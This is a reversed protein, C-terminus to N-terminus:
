VEKQYVLEIKEQVEREFKDKATFWIINYGPYLLLTESFDGKEDTFIQRENLWFFSINSAKGEIKILNSDTIKQGNQHSFINIQPGAILVRSNFLAYSIIGVFFLIFLIARIISSAKNKAM